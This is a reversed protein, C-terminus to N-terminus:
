PEGVIKRIGREPATKEEGWEERAYRHDHKRVVEALEAQLARLREREEGAVRRREPAPLRRLLALTHPRCPGPSARFAEALVPEAIWDALVALTLEEQEREAACAPCAPASQRGWFRRPPAADLEREFARLLDEYLIAVAAPGAVTGLERAHAACFGMSDRLRQRSDPDNVLEWSLSELYRRVTRAAIACVACGATSRLQELLEAYLLPRPHAPDPVPIRQLRTM